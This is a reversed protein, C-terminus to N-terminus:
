EATAPETEALVPHEAGEAETTVPAAVATGAQAGADGRENRDSRENRENRPGRANGSNGSNGGSNGRAPGPKPAPASLKAAIERISKELEDLRARKEGMRSEVDVIKAELGTRTEDVNPGPRLNTLTAQWRTVNEEDRALSERLRLTQERKRELADLMQDRRDSDRQDRNQNRNEFYAAQREFFVDISGRFRKWIADAKKQPVPGVAKWEAQLAKIAESTAKWQTSQSLEEARVCLAEKKRLNEEQEKRLRAYHEQRRGFFEDLSKRFRKWIPDGHERPVPGITKWEAQLAQLAEATSKWQASSALEEARVCLAEKKRLNEEQEERLKGLHGQRQEFFYNAPARFRDWLEQSREKAVPGIKKWEAQLRKIEDATAKWETSEKLEEARTILAEKRQLNEELQREREGADAATEHEHDAVPETSDQLEMRAGSDELAHVEDAHAEATQTEDAPHDEHGSGQDQARLDAGVEEGHGAPEEAPPTSETPSGTSAELTQSEGAAGATDEPTSVESSPVPEQRTEERVPAGDAAGGNEHMDTERNEQDVM